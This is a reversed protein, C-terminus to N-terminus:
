IVEKVLNVVDSVADGTIDELIEGIADRYGTAYEYAPDDPTLIQWDLDAQAFKLALREILSNMTAPTTM